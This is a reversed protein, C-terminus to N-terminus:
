KVFEKGFERYNEIGEEDPNWLELLGDNVITFGSEKLM